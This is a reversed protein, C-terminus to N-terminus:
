LESSVEAVPPLSPEPLSKKPAAKKQRKARRVTVLTKTKGENKKRQWIYETFKSPLESDDLNNDRNFDRLTKTLYDKSIAAAYSRKSTLVDHTGCSILELKKESMFSSVNDKMEKIKARTIRLAKSQEKALETLSILKKLSKKLSTM